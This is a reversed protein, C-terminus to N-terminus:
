DMVILFRQYNKETIKWKTYREKIERESFSIFWKWAILWTDKSFWTAVEIVWIEKLEKIIKRLKNLPIKTREELNWYSTVYNCSLSSFVQKVENITFTIKKM